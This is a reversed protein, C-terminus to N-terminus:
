KIKSFGKAVLQNLVNLLDTLLGSNNKLISSMEDDIAEKWFIVDQSQMAEQFTKKDDDISYCYSYQPGEEDRTGEVLYM